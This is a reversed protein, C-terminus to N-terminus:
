RVVLPTYEPVEGLIHAALLRVQVELLRRYSVRYGFTPHTLEHELRREYARIVSKRGAATLSIGGARAVFDSSAVEGNNVVQLVVSEAVIPRFEEALDLALAPRGFRPQHLFGLYPDFGVIRCLITLDKVLLSYAFGLLANIADPPPRRQRGEFRFTSGPLQSPKLMTPFASFYDRAAAGEVGLLSALSEVQLASAAASALRDLLESPVDTGNRRLLVRSNRIKGNIMRAAIPVPDNIGIVVQRRRLEVNKGPLGEALGSFWGGFSFWAVPVDRAFLTRLLQTGVQVNGHISVHSVDILRESAITSNGRRVELRGGSRGLYSGQELVYLPRAASASPMLRRPPRESRERLANVEDPLCIGVLSCRPCKPSDILPAPPTEQEACKRLSLISQLTLSLLDDDFDVRVRERTAAFYLEGHDCSHGAERLLLGQVCLQVREPDWARHANDPPAGKKTDVPVVTEGDSELVDIVATLGLRESSVHVSRAKFPAPEAPEPVTGGGADLARHQWTGERTDTNDAWLKGVFELHFLRPCYTFENVMRAPIVDPLVM